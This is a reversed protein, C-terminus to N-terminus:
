KICKRLQNELRKLDTEMAEITSYIKRKVREDLGDGNAGIFRYYEAIQQRKAECNHAIKAIKLYEM